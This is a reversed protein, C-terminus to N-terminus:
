HGFRLGIAGYLKPDSSKKSFSNYTPIDDTSVRGIEGVIKVLFLNLMVDGFYSTAKPSQAITIPMTPSFRVGSRNLAYSIDAASEYSDKGYGVAVGLLKSSKGVVLRWATSRATLGSVTITDNNTAAATVDLSPLDRRLWTVAVSPLLTTEKVIGLRAGYGVKVSGNPAKISVGKQSIEPVFTLSGLADVALMKTLGVPIGDFLGLAGDASPFGFPKDETQYSTRVAPGAALDYQDVKPIAGMIGNVRLEVTIKGLGGQAGGQGLVPNGGALTTGFQPTLYSFLDLAKQCADGGIQGPGVIAPNSCQSNVSGQAQVAAAAAASLLLCIAKRASM